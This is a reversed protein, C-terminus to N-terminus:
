NERGPDMELKWMEKGVLHSKGTEGGLFSYRDTDGGGKRGRERKRKRGERARGKGGEKGEKREKRGEKRRGEKGGEMQLISALAKCMGDFHEIVTVYM